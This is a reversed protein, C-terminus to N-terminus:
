EGRMLAIKCLPTTRSACQANLVGYWGMAVESDETANEASCTGVITQLPESVIDCCIPCELQKLHDELQGVFIYDQGKYSHSLDPLKSHAM